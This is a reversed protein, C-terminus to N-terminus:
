DGAASGCEKDATGRTRRGDIWRHAATESFTWTGAQLWGRLRGNRAAKRVAQETCRALRAVESTSLDRGENETSPRVPFGHSPLPSVAPPQPHNRQQALHREAQEAVDLLATLEPGFPIGNRTADARARRLAVALFRGGVEVDIVIAGGILAAPKDAAM